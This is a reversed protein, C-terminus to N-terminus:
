AEENDTFDTALRTWEAIQWTTPPLIFDFVVNPRNSYPDTRVAGTRQILNLNRQLHNRTDDNPKLTCWNRLVSRVFGITGRAEIEEPYARRYADVAENDTLGPPQTELLVLLCRATGRRVVARVGPDQGAELATPPDNAPSNLPEAEQPGLQFLPLEDGGRLTM